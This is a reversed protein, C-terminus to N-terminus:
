SIPFRPNPIFPPVSAVSLVSFGAKRLIKRIENRPKHHTQGTDVAM